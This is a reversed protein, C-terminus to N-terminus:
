GLRQQRHMTTHVLVMAPVCVHCLFNQTTQCSVRTGGVEKLHAVLRTASLTLSEVVSVMFLDDLLSIALPSGGIEPDLVCERQIM